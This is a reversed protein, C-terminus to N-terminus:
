GGGGDGHGGGGELGGATGGGNGGLWGEGDGGGGDGGGGKGEGGGDDGGGGDSGGEGGGGAWGGSGESGGMEGPKKSRARTDKWTTSFPFRSAKLGAWVLGFRASSSPMAASVIPMVTADALTRRRPSTYMSSRLAASAM